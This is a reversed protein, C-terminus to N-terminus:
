RMAAGCIVEPIPMSKPLVHPVFITLGVLGAFCASILVAAAAADKAAKIAPHHELTVANCAQEIATNIVELILVLAIALGLWRWEALNLGLWLGTAVVIGALVLHTRMNPESRVVFSVGAAAHRFSEARSGSRIPGYLPPTTFVPRWALPNPRLALIPRSVVALLIAIFTCCVM